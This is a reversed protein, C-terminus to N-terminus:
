HGVSDDLVKSRYLSYCQSTFTLCESIGHKMGSQYQCWVADIYHVNAISIGIELM